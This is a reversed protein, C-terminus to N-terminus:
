TAVRAPVRTARWTDGCSRQAPLGKRRDKVASSCLFGLLSGLRGGRKAVPDNHQDARRGTGAFVVKFFGLLSGLRGVHTTAPDHSVCVGGIEVGCVRV